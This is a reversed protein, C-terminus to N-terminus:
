SSFIDWTRAEVRSFCHSKGRLSFRPGIGKRQTCLLEMNVIICTFLKPKRWPVGSLGWSCGWLDLIAIIEVFSLSIKWQIGFWSSILGSDGRNFTCCDGTGWLVLCTDQRVKPLELSEMLSGNWILLFVLKLVPVRPFSWPHWIM